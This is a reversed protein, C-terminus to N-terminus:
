ALVDRLRYYSAGLALGVRRLLAGGPFNRHRIRAILDFRDRQGDIAEAALRGAIATVNLGHGSFGQLYYIDEGLQGFDPARSMTVDILGGWAHEIRVASLEPFAEVMKGRLVAFRHPADHRLYTSAGGWLMRNDSSVRYYDLLFNTDCAAYGRALLREAVEPRLRETAIIRNGISMVHHRVPVDLDAVFVNAAIVVKKCELRGTATALVPSPGDAIRTVPSNEFIRVGQRECAAAMALALKLPNVQGAHHDVLAAHYNQSSTWAALGEHEVFEVHEGYGLAGALKAHWNRLKAVHSPRAAYLVWGPRYECDMDLGTARQRAIEMGEISLDWARRADGEGLQRALVEIDCSFGPLIQGGNRGSAGSAIRQAELLAVSYGRASLELAASLGAFGGGVIGVDVQVTGALASRAPGREVTHEYYCDGAIDAAAAFERAHATPIPSSM